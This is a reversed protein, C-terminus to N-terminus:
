WGGDTFKILTARRDKADTERQIYGKKELDVVLQGMAQKTVGARDALVKIPTGEIDLNALLTTHAMSLGDHGREHLKRYAVDSVARNARALLRGIYDQRLTAIQERTIESDM